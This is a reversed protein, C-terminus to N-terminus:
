AAAFTAPISARQGANHSSSCVPLNKKPRSLPRTNRFGMFSAQMASMLRKEILNIRYQWPNDFGVSRRMYAGFDHKLRRAARQSTVLHLLTAYICHRNRSIICLHSMRPKCAPDGCPRLGYFHQYLNGARSDKSLNRCLPCKPKEGEAKSRVRWPVDDQCTKRVCGQRVRLRLPLRTVTPRGGTELGGDRGDPEDTQSM